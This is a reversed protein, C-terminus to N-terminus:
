QFKPFMPKLNRCQPSTHIKCGSPEIWKAILTGCIFSSATTTGLLISRFNQLLNHDLVLSPSIFFFAFQHVDRERPVFINFILNSQGKNICLQSTVNNRFLKKKQQQLFYFYVICYHSNHLYVTIVFLKYHAYLM